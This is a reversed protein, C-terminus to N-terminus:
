AKEENQHGFYFRAAQYAKHVLEEPSMDASFEASGVFEEEGEDYTFTLGANNENYQKIIKKLGWGGKQKKRIDFRLPQQFSFVIDLGDAHLSVLEGDKTHLIRADAGQGNLYAQLSEATLLGSERCASDMPEESINKISLSSEELTSTPTGMLKKFLKGKEEQLRQNEKMLREKEEMLEKATQHLSVMDEESSEKQKLLAQTEKEKEQLRGELEKIRDEMERPAGEGHLSSSYPGDPPLDALKMEYEGALRQCHLNENRAQERLISVEMWQETKKKELTEKESLLAAREGALKKIENQIRQEQNKVNEEREDLEKSRKELGSLTEQVAKEKKNLTEKRQQYTQEMRVYEKDRDALIRRMQALMDAANLPQGTKEKEREETWIAEM